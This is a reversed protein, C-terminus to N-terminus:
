IIYKKKKIKAESQVAHVRDELIETKGLGVISAMYPTYRDLSWNM